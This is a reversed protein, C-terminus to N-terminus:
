SLEFCAATHPMRPKSEAFTDQYAHLYETTHIALVACCIEGPSHRTPALISSHRTSYETANHKLIM